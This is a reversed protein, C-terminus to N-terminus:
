PSSTSGGWAFVEALRLRIEEQATKDYWDGKDRHMTACRCVLHLSHTVHSCGHRVHSCGRCAAVWLDAAQLLDSVLEVNFNHPPM